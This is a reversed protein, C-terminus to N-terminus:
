YQPAALYNIAATYIGAPTAAAINAIYRMKGTACTVVDDDGQALVVPTTLSSPEWAFQATGGDVITGAGGGYNTEIDLTDLSNSSVPDSGLIDFIDAATTYAVGFQEEGPNSSAPTGPSGDNIGDIQDGVTNALSYGSYYVVAGNSSNSSLRWYSLADYAKDVELSFEALQSGMDIPANVDIADCTGHPQNVTDPNTTGVSFAMTELVKTRIEISRTMVNAVTVGGDIIHTNGPPMSTPILHSTSDSDYTNIKVFFADAGPNTIYVSGSPRFIIEIKQNSTPSAGTSNVLRILNNKGTLNQDDNVADESEANQSAMTWGTSPSGNVLVVFEGAGPTSGAANVFTGVVNLDSKNVAWGGTTPTENLLRTSDTYVGDNNPDYDGTNNGPAICYGAAKTCYQLTFAKIPRSPSTSDTSVRFSFTEGSQKGNPGSGPPAYASGANGSADKDIYGPASSSLLLSRETLPNLADAFTLGPAAYLAIGSLLGVAMAFAAGRKALGKFNSISMAIHM